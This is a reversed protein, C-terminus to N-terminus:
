TNGVIRPGQGIYLVGGNEDCIWFRQGPSAFMKAVEVAEEQSTFYNNEHRAKASDFNEGMWVIYLKM